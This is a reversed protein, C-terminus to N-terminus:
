SCSVTDQKLVLEELSGLSVISSGEAASQFWARGLFTAGMEIRTRTADTEFQSLMRLNRKTGNGCQGCQCAWVWRHHGSRRFVRLFVRLFVRPDTKDLFHHHITQKQMPAALVDQESCQVIM